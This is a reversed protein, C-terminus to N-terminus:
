FALSGGCKCAFKSRANLFQSFGHCHKISILSGGFGSRTRKVRPRIDGVSAFGSSEFGIIDNFGTIKAVASTNHAAIVAAEGADAAGTLEM